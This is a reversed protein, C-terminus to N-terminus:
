RLIHVLRFSDPELAISLQFHMDAEGDAEAEDILAPLKPVRPWAQDAVERWQKRASDAGNHAFATGGLSLRHTASRCAM